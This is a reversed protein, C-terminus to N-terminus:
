ILGIQKLIQNREDESRTVTAINDKAVQVAEILDTLARLTNGEARRITAMRNTAHGTMFTMTELRNAEARLKESAERLYEMDIMPAMLHVMNMLPAIMM